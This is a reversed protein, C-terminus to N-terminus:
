IHGWRNLPLVEGPVEIVAEQSDYDFRYTAGEGAKEVAARIKRSGGDTVKVSFGQSGRRLGVRFRKVEKRTVVDIDAEETIIRSPKGDAEWTPRLAPTGDLTLAPASWSAGLNSLNVSTWIAVGGRSKIWERMKPANEVSCEHREVEAQKLAQM